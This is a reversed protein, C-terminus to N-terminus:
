PGDMHGGKLKNVEEFAKDGFIPVIHPVPFVPKVPSQPSPDNM